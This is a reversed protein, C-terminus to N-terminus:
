DRYMARLIKCCEDHMRLRVGSKSWLLGCVLKLSLDFYNGIRHHLSEDLLLANRMYNGAKFNAAQPVIKSDKLGFPSSVM